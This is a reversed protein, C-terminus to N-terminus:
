PSPEQHRPPQPPNPAAGQGAIRNVMDDAAVLGAAAQPYGPQGLVVGTITTQKGDIWRVARFAFCDGAASSSSPVLLQFGLAAAIAAIVVLLGVVLIGPIRRTTARARRGYDHRWDLSRRTALM